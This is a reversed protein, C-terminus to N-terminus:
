IDLYEVAGARGVGIGAIRTFGPPGRDDRDEARHGTDGPGHRQEDDGAGEGQSERLAAPLDGRQASEAGRRALDAPQDGALSQHDRECRRGGADGEAAREGRRDHAPELLVADQLAAELKARRQNGGGRRRSQADPERLRRDDRRRAAGPAGLRGFRQALRRDLM